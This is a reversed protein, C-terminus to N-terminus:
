CGGKNRWEWRFRVCVCACVWESVPPDRFNAKNWGTQVAIWGSSRFFPIKTFRLCYYYVVLIGPSCGFHSLRHPFTTNELESGLVWHNYFSPKHLLHALVMVSTRCRRLRPHMHTVFYTYFNVTNSCLASCISRIIMRIIIIIIIVM